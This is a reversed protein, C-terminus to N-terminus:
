SDHQDFERYGTSSHAVGRVIRLDAVGVFEAGRLQLLLRLGISLVEPTLFAVLHQLPLLVIQHARPHVLYRGLGM